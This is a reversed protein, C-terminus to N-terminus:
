EKAMNDSLQKNVAILEKSRARLKNGIDILRIIEAKLRTIEAELRESDVRLQESESLLYKLDDTLDSM